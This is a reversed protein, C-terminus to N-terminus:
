INLIVMCICYNSIIIYWIKKDWMVDKYVHLYSNYIFSKHVFNSQDSATYTTRYISIFKLINSFIDKFENKFRFVGLFFTMM